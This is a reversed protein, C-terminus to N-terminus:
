SRSPPHPPINSARTTHVQAGRLRNIAAALEFRRPRALNSSFAGPALGDLGKTDLLHEFNNLLEHMNINNQMPGKALVAIGRGIARTQSTEVLQEVASLDVDVDGYQLKSKGRAVIKGGTIFTKAVPTRTSTEGFAPFQLVAGKSDEAITKAQLTVDKPTYCDMMIVTDAVEFYDGAGGIVLISSVGQAEWLARVKSIFPTIPEKDPAVLRQMRADRIMFNTACTDEDILLATSGAELAEIIYAAQSTSGSADASCFASTSRGFPLNDIFPTIDVGNVCRGDEARVKVATPDVVVFERGDDPIHNYIGLELAELLTSKGHFGGGVILSVGKPIGMGRVTRGSPLNFEAAMGSPTEFKIVDSGTMPVDTAGSGRPLVARDIVFAVLGRAALSNRLAEQEEISIIHNELAESDLSKYLLAKKVMNPLTNGIIEACWNGCVTRGRAPLALTFRAQVAGEPSVQVSTRELVHQGPEDTTIEGGKEGSWGRSETRQDAGAGRASLAFQRTLYDCLAINRIKTAHLERPFGAIAPPIIVHFASPNAFPDAQVKDVYLSFDGGFSFTGEIDHYAPYQKGDIKRLINSLDQSSGTRFGSRSGFDGGPARTEEPVPTGGADGRGRGGGGYKNKYYEGRGGGRGGGRGRGGGYSMVVSPAFRLLSRSQTNFLSRSCTLIAGFSVLM